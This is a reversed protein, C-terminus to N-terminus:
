LDLKSTGPPLLMPNGVAEFKRLPRKPRYRQALGMVVASDAEVGEAYIADSREGTPLKVYGDYALVHRTGAESKVARVHAIAQALAEELLESAFRDVRRDGGSETMVFPILPGGSERVSDIGHDLAAFALDILEQSYENGM